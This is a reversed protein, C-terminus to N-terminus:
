FVFLFNAYRSKSNVQGLFGNKVFFLTARKHDNIFAVNQNTVTPLRFLSSFFCSVYTFSFSVPTVTFICLMCTTIGRLGCLLLHLLPSCILLFPVHDATAVGIPRDVSCNLLTLPAKMERARQLLVTYILFHHHGEIAIVISADQHVTSCHPICSARCCNYRSDLHQYVACFIVSRAYFVYSVVWSGSFDTFFVTRVRSVQEKVQQGRTSM